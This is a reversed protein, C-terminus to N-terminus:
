NQLSPLGLDLNLLPFLSLLYKLGNISVAEVKRNLLLCIIRKLNLNNPPDQPLFCLVRCVMVPIASFVKWSCKTKHKCIIVSLNNFEQFKGHFFLVNKTTVSTIIHILEILFFKATKQGNNNIKLYNHQVSSLLSCIIWEWYM